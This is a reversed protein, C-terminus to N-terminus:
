PDDETEAVILNAEQEQPQTAEIDFFVHLTPLEEENVEQEEEEENAQLTQLGTDAGQKAPPGGQRRCKCKKKLEQM